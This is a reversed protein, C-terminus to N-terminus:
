AAVFRRVGASAILVVVAAAGLMPLLPMSLAAALAAPDGALLMALTGAAILPVAVASMRVEGTAAQADRRAAADEELAAALRELAAATAGSDHRHLAFVAAVRSAPSSSRLGPAADALGRRFAATADGGLLVRAAAAQLVREAAACGRGSCRRAAGSLAQSGSGWAALETALARALQPAAADVAVEAAGRRLRLLLSGGSRTVTAATALAAVPAAGAAVIVTAVPVALLVQAVRWAAPPLHVQARWLRAGLRRGARSREYRQAARRALPASRGAARRRLGAVGLVLAVLLVVCSLVSM